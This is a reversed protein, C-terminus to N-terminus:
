AAPVMPTRGHTRGTVFTGTAGCRCRWHVAIGDATNAISEISRSGLLVRAGHSPCYIEFM